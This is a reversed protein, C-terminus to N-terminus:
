YSQQDKTQIMTPSQFIQNAMSSKAPIGIQIFPKKTAVHCSNCANVLRHYGQQFRRHDKALVGEEVDLLAPAPLKAVLEAINQGEEQIDSAELEEIVEEIEHIYFAALEWNQYEGAFWLKSGFRQFREMASLLVAEEEAHTSVKQVQTLQRELHRVRRQTGLFLILFVCLIVSLLATILHTKNMDWVIPIGPTQFILLHASIVM